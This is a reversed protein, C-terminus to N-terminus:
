LGRNQRPIIGFLKPGAGGVVAVMAVVTSSEPLAFAGEAWWAMDGNLESQAYWGLRNYLALQPRFNSEILDGRDEGGEDQCRSIKIVM